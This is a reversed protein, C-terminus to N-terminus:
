PRASISTSRRADIVVGAGRRLIVRGTYAGAVWFNTRRKGTFAFWVAKNGEAVSRSAALTDGDPGSLTVELVDGQQLGFLEIWFTIAPSDQQLIANAYAGAQAAERAPPQPAFGAILLGTSRYALSLALAADWLPNQMQGCAQTGPVPMGLAPMEPAPMELAPMGPAFPDVPRGHRRVAFDVHPFETNGSLGVRGLVTGAEVPQGARVAVSGRQLHSYQTEWGDGHSIRVSNGADKGALAARGRRSVAIDPEGDRVAAVIGASAALVNVGAAMAARDALRFDTGAHGDYSLTGCAYDRLGAGPNRDVYNQIHCDVGLHCQIPLGLVPPAAGAVHTAILLAFAAVLRPPARLTKTSM